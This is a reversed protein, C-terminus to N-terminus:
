AAQAWLGRVRPIVQEAFRRMEIDVPQFQLMFLEVGAAHFALIRSAVTDYSGVLGASTGGNSGIRASKAATRFMVAEPDANALL